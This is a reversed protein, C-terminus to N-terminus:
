LQRWWHIIVSIPLSTFICVTCVLSSTTMHPVCTCFALFTARFNFLSHLLLMIIIFILSVLTWHETGCLLMCKLCPAREKKIIYTADGKFPPCSPRPLELVCRKKLIIAPPMTQSDVSCRHAAQMSGRCMLTSTQFYPLISMTVKVKVKRSAVQRRSPDLDFKAYTGTLTYWLTHKLTSISGFANCNM